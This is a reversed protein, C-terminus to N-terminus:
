QQDAMHQASTLQKLMRKHPEHHNLLLLPNLKHLIEHSRQHQSRDPQLREAQCQRVLKCMHIIHTKDSEIELSGADILIDRSVSHGYM